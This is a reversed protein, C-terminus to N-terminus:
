VPETRSNVARRHQLVWGFVAAMIVWSLLASFLTNAAFATALHAPVSSPEDPPPPAGFIHPLLLIGGGLAIAWGQRFKAIVLLGGLTALVTQWWWIQRAGLDAAVMGPLEPSLGIAPMLAFTAFGGVGWFLANGPTIQIGSLVSLAALLLAMGITVLTTALVTYANREFGDAPAWPLSEAEHIHPAVPQPDAAHELAHADSVEYLEAELILPVTRWQQVVALALGAVIGSLVAAFFVRRFLDM